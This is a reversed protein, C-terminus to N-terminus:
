GSTGGAARKQALTLHLDNLRDSGDPNRGRDKNWNIKPQSRLIGATVFPRINLRVGDDLDPDWGVPQEALSKWRVYIDYPPEGELILQLKAKLQEAAALRREAGPIEDAVDGRVRGIWWNGLYDYTLLELLRRDLRHYNVLASFGDPTGDWIQWIFPRNSFVRCHDKFFGNRLWAALGAASGQAGVQCLLGDLVAPNWDGGYAQALLQLLRDGAQQEGGLAPLCVVGDTDALEELDDPEQHPWTYGLLRAVAVQLPAESSVPDGKFLWQAPSSSVPEPLGDPYREAAVAQWRDIDFPVKLLTANMVKLSQDIERVDKAFDSSSLYTWIAPLLAPSKPWVVACNNDFIEGKYLTCPLDGMLSVAVGDHGWADMGQISAIGLEALEALPGQGGEWRVVNERGGYPITAVTTSIQPTWIAKAFDVEWFCRILRRSDGTRLGYRSEAVDSLWTTTSPEQFTIRADPNRLQSLQDVFLLPEARLANAKQRAVGQTADVMHTARYPQVRHFVVLSVNVVEGSIAEFARPGLRGVLGIQRNCLLQRRFERYRPIYLWGQPLVFAQSSSLRFAREVFVTALDHKCDPYQGEVFGALLESMRGIGLFPPNTCSLTYERALLDATRAIGTAAEGFVAAAPDNGTRTDRQLAKTVLPAVIHWDVSELGAQEAIRIPDILSGLSDADAFLAHLRALAAEIQYDGDALETWNSLPANAPTGSCAINPLPLIRYGGTKWAQLALAFTAIQTCRPDLELGFLNDRLVADQAAATDLGEEEARMRWLMGFAAVLFHGSGCCPDIVTVESALAPWTDFTGAAPTRDDAFRLFEWDALLPSGPHHIAWWAGLSNELLFRVMYDETFLQTVPALDAGGIKRESRNVEDKRRAQWYQYVWGLSDEATIVDVPLLGLLEELRQRIEVPLRIQLLPDDQRFIGPLMAAAFRAAVEWMDSEGLEAAYDAVEDITVPQGTHDDVLLDNDALYRTFLMRHWHEYGAETVLVDVSGLQRALARLGRRRRREEESLADPARDAAVGLAVIRQACAAEVVDRAEAVTDSLLKRQAASLVSM